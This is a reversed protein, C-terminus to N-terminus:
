LTILEQENEAPDIKNLKEKVSEKTKKLLKSTENLIEKMEALATDV